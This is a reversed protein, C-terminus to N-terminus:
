ELGLRRLQDENYGQLHGVEHRLTRRIQGRLEAHSHVTRGLNKRYLILTRAQAALGAGSDSVGAPLGRYLGLITPTFPPTSAQLDVLLPVDALELEVGKLLDALESPLEAIASEVEKAFEERTLIVPMWFEEPALERARRFHVEADDSRGHHEYILGLHHHAYADSPTGSLIRLFVRESEHLRLLNFYSVALEYEARALKPALELAEEVRVLAGEADGLDNLAEAELLLLRGQLNQDSRRRAVARQGGRRAYQLGVEVTHRRKPPLINIFFDAVDALTEPDDPDLVLAMAFAVQAEDYRQLGILAAARLHQAEVAQPVLDTALQACANAESFRGQRYHEGALELVSDPDGADASCLVFEQPEFHGGGELGLGISNAGSAPVVKAPPPSSEETLSPDSNAPPVLEVGESKSKCSASSVLGALVLSCAVRRPSSSRVARACLETPM